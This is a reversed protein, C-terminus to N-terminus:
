QRAQMAWYIWYYIRKTAGRIPRIDLVRALWHTLRDAKLKFEPGVELGFARAEEVTAASLMNGLHRTTRDMTSLRLYGQAVLRNEFERLGGMLRGSWGDHLFPLLVDRPAMFQFHNAAVFARTGNHHLVLDELEATRPLHSKPDRGTSAAWEAEREESIRNGWSVEYRPDDQALKLASEVGYEFSTRIACGSVMAVRPFSDLLTLQAEAWGPYFFVDEDAFAIIEGQAASFIVRLAALKGINARSEILLDIEGQKQLGRLYDKVEACSGNDFVLLDCNVSTHTKFSALSLRLVDLKGAYFGMKAPIFVLFAATIREFAGDSSEIKGEMSRKKNM